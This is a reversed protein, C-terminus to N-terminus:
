ARKLVARIENMQKTLHLLRAEDIASGLASTDPVRDAEKSFKPNHIESQPNPMIWDAIRFECDAISNPAHSVVRAITSLM